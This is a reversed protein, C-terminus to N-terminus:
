VSSYKRCLSRIQDILKPVGTMPDEDGEYEASMYGKYGSRAFGQFVRELDITQNNSSFRSKIHTQTAYPITAEIQAYPDDAFHSIDLTMGAFPSDVRRLIEVVSSAKATIGGHSEIGLTIGKKGAYDCAAKMTEVVWQIGQADSTGPPPTGGFVRLHSAGLLDTVDVWHKIKELEESRKAPDPQCMNTSIAAGSFPLGNRYALHRLNALYGPETSKLWYTTIDVGHVGLEVGKLIFEEMTMQDKGLYKEYSYACCGVLLRPRALSASPSRAAGQATNTWLSGATALGAARLFERRAIPLKM